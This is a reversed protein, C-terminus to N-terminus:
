HMGTFVANQKRDHSVLGLSPTFYRQAPVLNAPIRKAVTRSTPVAEM